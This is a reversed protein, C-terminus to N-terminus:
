AGFEIHVPLGEMQMIKLANTTPSGGPHLRYDFVMRGDEISERFHYNQIQPITEALHVLELDHTSILGCGNGGVLAQIYSRSGILRERNNTGRFIEDILFFLPLHEPAQLAALLAKLRRVEAYFYSIGDIVSDSVKICTFLRFLGTSLLDGCIVGGAYALSLNVGLTRLFSSKGSMNSGTLIIVQGNELAFDNCVREEHPILPHGIQSTKLAPQTQMLPFTYAPNLYAFHALANLAEVEYLTELWGPLLRVLDGKSQQLRYAFFIDWPFLTNIWFWLIVNRAISIAAVIRRIRRLQRSPRNQTIPQCLRALESGKRYPYAELSALAASLREIESQLALSQAFVDGMSRLMVGQVAWYVILSFIWLSPLLNLGDLALLVLNIAALILLLALVVPSVRKSGDNQLWGLIRNGDWREHRGNLRVALTLRDRFTTLPIIERVLTQRRAIATHDPHTTLLWDGLRKSGGTSVTTDLLRYISFEGTIDLDLAFPHGDSPAYPSEPLASWHLNMRALSEYKMRQWISFRQIARQIRRHFYILVTFGVSSFIIAAYGASSSINFAFVTLFLGAFFLGLRWRIFRVHIQNLEALRVMLRTIQREHAKLRSDRTLAL